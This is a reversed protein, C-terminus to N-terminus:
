SEPGVKAAPMVVGNGEREGTGPNEPADSGLLKKAKKLREGAKQAAALQAASREGKMGWRLREVPVPVYFRGTIEGTRQAHTEERIALGLRQLKRWVTPDASWIYVLQEDRDWRVVTEQEARLM